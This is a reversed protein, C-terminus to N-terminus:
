AAAKAPAARAIVAQAAAVGTEYAGNMYGYHEISAHEGAFLLRGGLEPLGAAGCFQAHQGPAMCTYSGKNFPMKTWNMALGIGEYSQAAEPFAQSILKAHREISDNGTNLGIKGGLLATLLGRDGPQLRSAEWYNQIETSDYVVGGFAPHDATKQRWVRAKFSNVVKSNTGLQYNFIAQLKVTSLGLSSVGDVDRLVSFPIACIVQQARVETTGSPTQFTCLFGSAQDRIAVLQHRFLIQKQDDDGRGGTVSNKLAAILGDNGGKVRKSEDSEGFMMFHDPDTGITALLNLSSQEALERGYECLYAVDVTKRVWEDTGTQRDLFDRMSMGDYRLFADNHPDSFLMRPPGDGFMERNAQAIAALLPRAAHVFEHETYIRGDIHYLEQARDRTGPETTFDEIELGLEHALGILTTHGTDVLEAGREFFQGDANVNRATFIRGGVRTAAEYIRFPIGAKKLTYGAAMGGGGGGIIVVPDGGTGSQAIPTAAGAARALAGFPRLSSALAIGAAGAAMRRLFARRGPDDIIQDLERPTLRHQNAYHALRMLRGIRKGLASKKM